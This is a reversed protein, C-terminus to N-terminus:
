SGRCYRPKLRCFLRRRDPERLAPFPDLPRFRYCVKAAHRRADSTNRLPGPRPKSAQARPTVIFPWRVPMQAEAATEVGVAVEPSAVALREAQHTELAQLALELQETDHVLKESSRGFEARRYRALQFKLQAIEAQAVLAHQTM